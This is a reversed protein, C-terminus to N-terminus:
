TLILIKWYIQFLLTGFSLFIFFSHLQFSNFRESDRKWFLFLISLSVLSFFFFILISCFFYFSLILSCVAVYWCKMRVTKNTGYRHDKKWRRMENNLIKSPLQNISKVFATWHQIDSLWRSQQRALVFGDQHILSGGDPWKRWLMHHFGVDDPLSTIRCDRFICSFLSFFFLSLSLLLHEYASVNYIHPYM